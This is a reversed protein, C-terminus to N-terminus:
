APECVVEQLLVRERAKIQQYCELAALRGSEGHWFWDRLYRPFMMGLDRLTDDVPEHQFRYEHEATSFTVAYRELATDCCGVACTQFNDALELAEHFQAPSPSSELFAAWDFPTCGMVEAYTM